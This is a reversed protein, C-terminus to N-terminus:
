FASMGICLSLLTELKPLEHLIEVLNDFDSPSNLDGNYCGYDDEESALHWIDILKSVLEAVDFPSVQNMELFAPDPLDVTDEGPDFWIQADDDEEKTAKM